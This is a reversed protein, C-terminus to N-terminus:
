SENKQDDYPQQPQRPQIATVLSSAFRRPQWCNWVSAAGGLAPSWKSTSVRRRRSAGARPAVESRSGMSLASNRGSGSPRVGGSFRGTAAIRRVPDRRHREGSRGLRASGLAGSGFARVADAPSRGDRYFRACTERAVDLAEHPRCAPSSSWYTNESDRRESPNHASM